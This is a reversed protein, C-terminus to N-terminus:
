LQVDMVYNAKKKQLIGRLLHAFFALVQLIGAIHNYIKTDLQLVTTPIFM